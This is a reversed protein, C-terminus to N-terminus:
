HTPRDRSFSSVAGVAASFISGVGCMFTVANIPPEYDAARLRRLKAMKYSLVTIALLVLEVM